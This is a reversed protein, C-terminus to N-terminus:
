SGWAPKPYTLGASGPDSVPLVQNFTGNQWQFVFAASKPNEGLSTFQAPGQVTQLTVGSHLYKIIKANSTGRTATIADAAVQGSSFAEAVDANISTATGGYKAIYEEVMAYSLADHFAGNWGGPVMVGDANAKGVPGLFAQGQDPGSVAIFVKPTYHQKEFTSMFTSVTPVDTSGLVVIQANSAAVAAAPAKYASAKEAFLGHYVTTIGLSTLERQATQVAPVAFPDEASPYAATKPRQSLPMSKIWAIFPLMYDAVPLSPSFVNHSKLNSPSQFVSEADGAGEIMAYGYRAVAAVAPATLLSSFPGLTLAVHDASILTRYDSAVKTPSSADDRIILKIQRGLLGGHSNVDSQWLQYGRQFAQGDAAFGGTLPLSAGVLIPPGTGQASAAGGCGALMAATVAAAAALSLSRTPHFRM